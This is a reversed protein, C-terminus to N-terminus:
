EQPVFIEIFKTSTQEFVVGRKLDLVPKKEHQIKKIPICEMCPKAAM